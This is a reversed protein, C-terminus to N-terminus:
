SALAGAVAGTVASAVACPHSVEESCNAGSVRNTLGNLLSKGENTQGLAALMGALNTGGAPNLMGMLNTVGEQVGGANAIVKLDADKLAEAMSVGVAQGAKVQEISVLYAQYGPNAGIEKALMIQTQVPATLMAQEAAAAAEGRARIGEADRQAVVLDAEAKIALQQREAEANVVTTQRQIEAARVEEIQRVAMQREATTAAEALVAQRSSENAIGVEREKEAARTGIAQAAQERQLAIEREATIESLEAARNNDAIQIRSERDIRSVEKAMINAIVDSGPADQIDMFEISKVAVVGWEAVQTEVASSFQVGLESRSQLIEELKNTALVSRVAGQLIALLDDRLQNFSAVRQAAVEARDVRFFAVASLRFPLRAQDYALYNELPVQFNSEPLEIVSVGFIPLWSPWAYYVNGAAKGRGYPVTSKRRQVIHVMNTPVVKRLLTMVKFIMGAFVAVALVTIMFDFTM